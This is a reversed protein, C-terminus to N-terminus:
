RAAALERAVARGADLAAPTEFFGDGQGPTGIRRYAAALSRDDRVDPMGAIEVVHRLEHGLVAMLDPGANPVRLVIRLYRTAPTAAAVQVFGNVTKPLPKLEVTVIVDSNELDAVFGALTPSQGAARLLLQRAEASAARVHSDPAGIGAAEAAGVSVGAVMGMALGVRALRTTLTM